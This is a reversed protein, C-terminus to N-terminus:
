KVLFTGGSFLSNGGKLLFIPSAAVVPPTGPNYEVTAWVTSIDARATNGTSIVYGVQMSDLTSQTWAAGDPDTYLTQPPLRPVANTNMIYSTANRVVETSQAKTGGSTKEIETKFGANTAASRSMYDNVQVLTVTDYSQIGSDALNFLDEQALTNSGNFSTAGNPTLENVRTFNNGAGATGGTQTAFTNSDGAANPKLYLVKGNTPLGTQVSGSSDNIAVDDFAYIQGAATENNMNTGITLTVAGEAFNLTNSGAFKTTGCSGDSDVYAEWTDAAGAGSADFKMEVCYWISTTLITSPSGVPSGNTNTINSGLVLSGTPNIGIWPFLTAGSGTVIAISTTASSFKTVNLYFRFFVPGNTDAASFQYALDDEAGSVGLVSMSYLGSRQITSSAVTGASPVTWQDLNAVVTDNEFGNTFLRAAYVHQATCLFIFLVLVPITKRM